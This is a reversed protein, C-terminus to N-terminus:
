YTFIKKKIKQKVVDTVKNCACDTSETTVANSVIGFTKTSDNLVRTLHFSAAIAIDVIVCASIIRLEGVDM